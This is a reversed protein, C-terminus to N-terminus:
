KRRQPQLAVVNSHLDIEIKPPLPSSRALVAHVRQEDADAVGGLPFLRSDLM